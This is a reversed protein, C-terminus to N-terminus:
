LLTYSCIYLLALFFLLLFFSAQVNSKYTTTHLQVSPTRCPNQPSACSQPQWHHQHHPRQQQANIATYLWLLLPNVDCVDLLLLWPMYLRSYFFLGTLWLDRWLIRDGKRASWSQLGWVKAAAVAKTMMMLRERWMYVCTYIYLCLSLFLYLRSILERDELRKMLLISSM